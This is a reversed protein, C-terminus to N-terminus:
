IKQLHLRAAVVLVLLVQGFLQARSAQTECRLALLDIVHQQVLAIMRGGLFNKDAGLLLHRFDGVGRDIIAEVREYFAAEGPLDSQIAPRRTIARVHVLMTMKMTIRALRNKVHVQGRLGHLQGLPELCFMKVDGDV